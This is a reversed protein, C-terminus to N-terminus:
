DYHVNQLLINGLVQFIYSLGDELSQGNLRHEAVLLWRLSFGMHRLKLTTGVRCSSFAQVFCHLGLATLFLYM